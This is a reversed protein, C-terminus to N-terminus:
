RRTPTQEELFEELRELAGALERYVDDGLADRWEAELRAITRRIVAEVARGRPTLRVLHIRRDELNAGAQAQRTIYGGAELQHLLHNMAQKSAQTRSALVGPRQGDPGPYQFVGLHAPLIDAFGADRLSALV